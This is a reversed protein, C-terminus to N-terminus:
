RLRAHNDQAKSWKVLFYMAAQSALNTVYHLDGDYVGSRLAYITPGRIQFLLGALRKGDKKVFIIGGDRKYFSLLWAKTQLLAAKGSRNQAYPLYM